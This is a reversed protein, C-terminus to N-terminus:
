STKRQPSIIIKASKPQNQNRHTATPQKQNSKTAKPQKQIKTTKKQIAVEMDVREWLSKHTQSYSDYNSLVPLSEKLFNYPTM